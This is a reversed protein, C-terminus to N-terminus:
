PWDKSPVLLLGGTNATWMWFNPAAEPDGELPLLVVNTEINTKSTFENVSAWFLKVRCEGNIKKANSSISDCQTFNSSNRYKKQGKTPLGDTIVYISDPKPRTQNVLKLASSLNTGGNPVIADLNQTIMKFDNINNYYWKKEGLYDANESFTIISLESNEPIRAIIWKIVRITRKWKDGQKIFEEASNKRTIIDILLEDTMSSSIDLLLGIRRGKVKMGILFNQEGVGKLEINSISENNIIEIKNINEELNSNNEKNIKIEDKIINKISSLDSIKKTIKEKEMEKKNKKTLMQKQEELLIAEKDILKSLQPRLDNNSTIEDDPKDINHKVLIFILAVAGLGCSM